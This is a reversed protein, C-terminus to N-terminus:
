YYTIIKRKLAVEVSERVKRVQRHLRAEFGWGRGGRQWFSVGGGIGVRHDGRCLYVVGVLLHLKFLYCVHVNAM